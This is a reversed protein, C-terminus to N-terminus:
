VNWLLWPSIEYRKPSLRRNWDYIASIEWGRTYQAEASHNGKSSLVPATTWFLLIIPSSPHSLLKVIDEAMHICHVLTDFLRVSLCVTLCRVVAFVASVCLTARYFYSIVCLIEDVTTSL